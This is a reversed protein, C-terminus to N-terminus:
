LLLPGKFEICKYMKQNPFIFMTKFFIFNPSILLFIIKSFAFDAACIRLGFSLAWLIRCGSKGVEVERTRELHAWGM